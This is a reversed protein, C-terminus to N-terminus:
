ARHELQGRGLEPFQDDEFVIFLVQLCEFHAKEQLQVRQGSGSTGLRKLFRVGTHCYDRHGPM